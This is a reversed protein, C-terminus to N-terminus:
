YFVVVVVVVTTIIDVIDNILTLIVILVINFIFLYYNQIYISHLLILCVCITTDVHNYTNQATTHKSLISCLHATKQLTTAHTAKQKLQKERRNENRKQKQKQKRM